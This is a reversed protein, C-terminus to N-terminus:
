NMVGTSFIEVYKKQASVFFLRSDLRCTVTVGLLGEKGKLRDTTLCGEALVSSAPILCSAWLFVGVGSAERHVLSHPIM